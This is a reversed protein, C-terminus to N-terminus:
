RWDAALESIAARLQEHRFRLLQASDVASKNRYRTSEVDDRVTWLQNVATDLRSYTM